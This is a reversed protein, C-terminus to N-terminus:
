LLTYHQINNNNDDDVADADVDVDVKDNKVAEEWAKTFDTDEQSQLKEKRRINMMMMMSTMMM